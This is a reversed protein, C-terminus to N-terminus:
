PQAGDGDSLSDVFVASHVFCSSSMSRLQPSITSPVALTSSIPPL